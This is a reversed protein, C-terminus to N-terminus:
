TVNSGGERFDNLKAAIEDQRKPYPHSYHHTMRITEHGLREAIANDPFGMDSLMSAHSHRLDHVRIRKIGAKISGETIRRYLGSKHVGEFIRDTDKIGYLMKLCDKMEETIFNPLKIIRTSRATKPKSIIEKGKLVQYTKNIYMIGKDFDFDAPTLALMEGERAGTWYLIEFAYYYIPEDMMVESFKKYDAETWFDRKIEKESGLTGAIRAPNSTLGYYMIGHNFMASLQSHISELYSEALPKGHKTTMKRMENQWQVIDRATIEAMKRKGLFPLIKKEIMNKKTEWTSERIRPRIDAVYLEYFSEFTMDLNVKSKLMCQREWEQAERRTDFGRKVKQRQNGQWDQYRAYVYWIGKGRKKNEDKYVPM